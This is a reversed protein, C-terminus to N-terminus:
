HKNRYETSTFGELNKFVRYFYNHNQIGVKQAIEITSLSTEKLLRKAHEIRKHSVYNNFTM